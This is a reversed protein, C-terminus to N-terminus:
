GGIIEHEVYFRDVEDYDHIIYSMWEHLCQGLMSGSWFLESWVIYCMANM